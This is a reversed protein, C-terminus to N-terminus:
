IITAGDGARSVDESGVGLGGGGAILAGRSRAVGAGCGRGAAFPEEVVYLPAVLSGM